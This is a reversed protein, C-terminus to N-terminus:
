ENEKVKKACVAAGAACAVMMAPLVSMMEGTQASANYAVFAVTNFAFDFTATVKGNAVADPTVTVWTGDAKQVLVSLKQGATVGNVDFTVTVKEYSGAINVDVVQLVNATSAVKSKAQQQAEDVKSQTVATIQPVEAVDKGDMKVGGAFVSVNSYNGAVTDTTVTTETSPSKAAFVTTGMSMVMVAALVIAIKKKM